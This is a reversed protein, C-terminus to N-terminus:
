RRVGQLCKLLFENEDATGISIRLFEPLSYNAIERVLIGHSKLHNFVGASDGFKVTVFNGQSPLVSWGLEEIRQALIDRWKTNHELSRKVFDKDQLAAIGAAQTPAGINFIARTRNLLDIINSGGYAWGLRLAALGYIKSFTRAMITNDGVLERGDKYDSATAVEAYASDIVLLIDSRLGKRLRAIESAPVYTGTPNNPNAVFVVRTKTTVKALIADVDTTYDKEDAVVPTAGAALIAIPYVLFGHRTYIAEDGQGLFTYAIQKLIEDSGAGCIIKADDLDHAKGIAARLDASTADPYRSFDAFNKYAAIALPSCGLPNENSSLKIVREFGEAKSKGPTYPMIKLIQQNVKLM